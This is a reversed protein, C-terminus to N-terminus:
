TVSTAEREPCPHAGLAFVLAPGTFIFLAFHLAGSFLCACACARAGLYVTCTSWTVSTAPVASPGKGM